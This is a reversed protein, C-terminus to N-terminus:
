RWGAPWAEAKYSEFLHPFTLMLVLLLWAMPDRPRQFAVWFGLLMCIAPLLFYLVLGVVLRWVDVPIAKVPLAVTREGPHTPDSSRLVVAISSGIPADAFPRAWDALGRYPRGDISLVEDGRHIGAQAAETTVVDVRDTATQISFFPVTRTTEWLIDHLYPAEYAVTITFLFALVCYRFIPRKVPM